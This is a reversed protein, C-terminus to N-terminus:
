LSIKGFNAAKGSKLELHLAVVKKVAFDIGKSTNQNSTEFLRAKENIIIQQLTRTIRANNMHGSNM